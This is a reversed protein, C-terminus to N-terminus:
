DVYHILNDIHRGSPAVQRVLWPCTPLRSVDPVNREFRPEGGLATSGWWPVKHCKWTSMKVLSFLAMFTDCLRPLYRPGGCLRLLNCLTPYRGCDSRYLLGMEFTSLVYSITDKPSERRSENVAGVPVIRYRPSHAGHMNFLKHTHTHTDKLAGIGLNQHSGFAISAPVSTNNDTSKTGLKEGAGGRGGYIDFGCEPQSSWGWVYSLKPGSWVRSQCGTDM